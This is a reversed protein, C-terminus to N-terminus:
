RDRRRLAAAVPGLILEYRWVPGADDDAIEAYWVFGLQELLRNSPEARGPHARGRDSVGAARGRRDDGDGRAPALGRRRRAPAISYGIEVAGDVPPGKFGGLGVVEGPAATSSSCRAWPPPDGAPLADAPAPLVEPFDLYGEVVTWGFTPAFEDLGSSSSTPWRPLPARAGRACSIAARRNARIGYSRRRPPM